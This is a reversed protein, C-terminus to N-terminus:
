SCVAAERSSAVCHTTHQFSLTTAPLQAGLLLLLLLLRLLLVMQNYQNKKATSYTPSDVLL